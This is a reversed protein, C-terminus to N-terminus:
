VPKWQSVSETAPRSRPRTSARSSARTGHSAIGSGCRPPQSRGAPRSAGPLQGSRRVAASRTGVPRIKEGGAPVILGGDRGGTPGDLDRDDSGRGARMVRKVQLDPRCCWWIPACAPRSRASRTTWGSCGPRRRRRWRWRTRCRSGPTWRTACRWRGHDAHQGRDLRQPGAPGGPRHGRGAPRGARVSRRAHRDGDMADTVLAARDPGAARAAFALMGPHLHVNDAILECVAPPASCASSRAPSATIRRRCGTSCTPASRRARQWVPWADARVHRRHARARRARWPRAPLAIAELAGPLEPAITVM